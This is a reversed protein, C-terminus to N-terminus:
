AAVDKAFAAVMVRRSRVALSSEDPAVDAAALIRGPPEDRALRSAGESM